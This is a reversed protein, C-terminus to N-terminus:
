KLMEKSASTIAKEIKTYGTCRCITGSICEKIEEQNPRSNNKLLAVGNMVMAPTCFGCQIAGEEVMASQLSHLQEGNAVGEITVVKSGQAEAALILCALVPRGDLHITCCGCEGNDCGKKTGSLGLEIRLFDLLTLTPEIAREYITDNVDINIIAKSSTM